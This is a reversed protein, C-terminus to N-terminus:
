TGRATTHQVGAPRDVPTCRKRRPLSVHRACRGVSRGFRAWLTSVLLATGATYCVISIIPTKMFMFMIFVLTAGGFYLGTMKPNRWLLLDEAAYCCVRKSLTRNACRRANPLAHFLLLVTCVPSARSSHASRQSVFPITIKHPSTSTRTTTTSM